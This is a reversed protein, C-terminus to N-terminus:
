PWFISLRLFSPPNEGEVDEAVVLLPRTTKAVQELLPLMRERDQVSTMAEMGNVVLNVIVQQLQIWDGRVPPLGSELEFRITVGHQLAEHQVLLLAVDSIDLKGQGRAIPKTDFASALAAYDRNGVRLDRDCRHDRWAEARLGGFDAVGRTRGHRQSSLARRALRGCRQSARFQRRDFAGYAGSSSGRSRPNESGGAEACAEDLSSGNLATTTLTASLAPRSGAKTRRPSVLSLLGDIFPRFPLTSTL